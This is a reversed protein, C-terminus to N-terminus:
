VRKKARRRVYRKKDLFFTEELLPALSEADGQITWERTALLEAARQQIRLSVDEETVLEGLRACVREVDDDTLSGNDAAREVLDMVAWRVDDSHDLLFDALDPIVREDDLRESLQWILQLKAEISRHDDPGYNLLAELFFRIAERDGTIRRYGQLAYTLQKETGIFGRLPELADDGISVLADELWKKEDEDAIGGSANCAFRKLVGRLAEPSGDALLRQMERMRVDPQAFPNSALKAIKDIKQQTLPGKSFLGLFGM